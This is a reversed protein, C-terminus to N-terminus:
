ARFKYPVLVFGTPDLVFLDTLSRPEGNRGQAQREIRRRISDYAVVQDTPDAGKALEEAVDRVETPRGAVRLRALAALVQLRFVTDRDTEKAVAQAREEALIEVIVPVGSVSVVKFPITFDAPGDKMKDVKLWVVDDKVSVRWIAYALSEILSSGLGGRAADKGPHHVGIVLAGGFGRALYEMGDVIGTGAAPANIDVGVAARTLTDLVVIGPAWERYVHILEDLEGRAMLNPGTSLTMWREDLEELTIGRQRAVAPLRQTDMGHGGEYALYLVRVGADMCEKIVVGTKHSSRPGTVILAAGDDPIRPMACQRRHSDFYTLPARTAAESPKRGFFRSTHATPPAPGGQNYASWAGVAGYKEVTTQPLESGAPNQASRYASAVIFTTPEDPAEGYPIFEEDIMEVANAQSLGLGSLKAAVAAVTANRGGMEPVRGEAVLKRIYESGAHIARPTDPRFNEPTILKPHEAKTLKARLWVPLDGIM